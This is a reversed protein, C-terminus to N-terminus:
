ISWIWLYVWKIKEEWIRIKNKNIKKKKKREKKKIEFEVIYFYLIIMGYKLKLIEGFLNNLDLIDFVYVSSGWYFCVCLCCGDKVCESEREREREFLVVEVM